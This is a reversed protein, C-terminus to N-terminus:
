IKPRGKQVICILSVGFPLNLRTLIYREFAFIKRLVFNLFRNTKKIDGDSVVRRKFFKNFRRAAFVLPFFLMNFYSIKIIRFDLGDFLKLLSKKTYRRQHHNIEDNYSWLFQFAPVTMYFLGNKKLVRNIESVAKRDDNIHELVDFAVVLDFSEDPFSLKEANGQIVNHFSKKCFSVAEMSYDVGTVDGLKSLFDLEAGTGCGLALIKLKEHKRWVFHEGLWNIIERRGCFWWHTRESEYMTKYADQRM